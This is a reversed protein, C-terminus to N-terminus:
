QFGPSCEQSRATACVRLRVGTCVCLQLPCVSVCVRLHVKVSLFVDAGNSNMDCTLEESKVTRKKHREREGEALEIEKEIM